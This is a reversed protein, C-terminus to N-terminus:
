YTTYNKNLIWSEFIKRTKNDQLKRFIYTFIEMMIKCKSTNLVDSIPVGTEQYNAEQSLGCYPKFACYDCFYTDNISASILNISKQKSIIEPISKSDVDGVLFMDDNIMRGEDCTYINGDYNYSLQGIISAGTSILDVYNAERKLILKELIIISTRETMFIGKKNLELIYDMSKKWFEIYDEATYGINKWTGVARGLFNLERLHIETYGLKVYEDIIEKSFSLSTKSITTLAGFFMGKTRAKKIWEITKQHSSDKSMNPRNKDHIYAPGDLSTCVYINNKKFYTLIEDTMLQLNTTLTYRIDKKYKKNLNETYNYIHKILDIRLLPEGGQFEITIKNNPTTMIIDIFKEANEKSLDFKNKNLHLSAASHCYGCAQPCRKSLVIIHLSPGNFLINMNRKARQMLYDAQTSSEIIFNESKLKEYLNHNNTINEEQLNRFEEQDLFIWDFYESTVLYKNDIKQFRYPLLFHTLTQKNM